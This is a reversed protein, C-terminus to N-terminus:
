ELLNIEFRKIKDSPFFIMEFDQYHGITPYKEIIERLYKLTIDDSARCLEALKSLSIPNDPSLNRFIRQFATVINHKIFNSTLSYDFIKALKNMNAIITSNPYTTGSPYVATYYDIIVGRRFFAKQLILIVEFMNEYLLDKDEKYYTLLKLYRSNYIKSEFDKKILDTIINMTKIPNHDILALAVRYKEDIRLKRKATDELLYKLESWNEEVRFKDIYSFSKVIRNFYYISISEFAVLYFSFFAIGFIYGINYSSTKIIIPITVM